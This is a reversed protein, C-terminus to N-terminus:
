QGASLSIRCVPAESRASGPFPRGTLIWAELALPWMMEVREEATTTASLNSGPENGLAYRRVPWSRRDSAFASESSMDCEIAVM